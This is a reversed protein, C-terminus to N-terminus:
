LGQCPKLGLEMRNIITSLFYIVHSTHLPLSDISIKNIINWNKLVERPIDRHGGMLFLNKERSLLELSDCYDRGDEALYVTKFGKKETIYVLYNLDISGIELDLKSCTSNNSFCRYILQFIEKESADRYLSTNRSYIYQPNSHDLGGLLGIFCSKSLTSSAILSRIIVDLRGTHGAYGKPPV